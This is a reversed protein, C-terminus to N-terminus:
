WKYGVRVGVNTNDKFDTNAEAQIFGRYDKKVDENLMRLKNITDVNSTDKIELDCAKHVIKEAVTEAILQKNKAIDHIKDKFQNFVYECFKIIYRDPIFNLLKFRAQLLDIVDQLKEKGGGKVNYNSEVDQMFNFTMCVLFDWKYKIALGFCIFFLILAGFYFYIDNNIM